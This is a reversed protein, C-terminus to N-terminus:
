YEWQIDGRAGGAVPALNLKLESRAMHNFEGAAQRSLELANHREWEFGLYGLISGALGGWGLGIVAGGPLSDLAAFDTNATKSYANVGGWIAGTIFGYASGFFLWDEERTIKMGAETQLVSADDCRSDDYYRLLETSDYDQGDVLGHNPGIVHVKQKDFVAQKLEVSADAPLAKFPEPAHVFNRRACSCVFALIIPFFYFKFKM